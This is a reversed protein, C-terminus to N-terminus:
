YICIYIHKIEEKEIADHAAGSQVEIHSYKLLSLFVKTKKIFNKFVSHLNYSSLCFYIFLFQAWFSGYWRGMEQVVVVLMGDV